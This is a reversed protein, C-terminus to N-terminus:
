LTMQGGSKLVCFVEEFVQERHEKEIYMMTFFSTVRDFTHDLFGLDGADMVIKLADNDTEILEYALRDSPWV